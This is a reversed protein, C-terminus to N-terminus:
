KGPASTSGRLLAPPVRYNGITQQYLSLGGGLALLAFFGAGMLSAALLRLRAGGHKSRSHPAFVFLCRLCMYAGFLTLGIDTVWESFSRTHSWVQRSAQDTPAQLHVYRPVGGGEVIGNLGITCSQDGLVLIQVIAGDGPELIRWDITAKTGDEATHATIQCVERTFRLVKAEIVRVGKPPIFALPELVNEPRISQNGRNWLAFQAAFVDQHSVSEGHISVAIGTPADANVFVSRVPPEIIAVERSPVAQWYFWVALPISVVSALTGIFGVVPHSFWTKTRTFISAPAMDLCVRPM